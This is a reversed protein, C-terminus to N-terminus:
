VNIPILVTDIIHVVGRCVKIDPKVVAAESDVAKILVGDASKSVTLPPVPGGLATKLQQGDSLSSATAAAGPVIHYSLLATVATQNDTLLSPNQISSVLKQFADNNPAFLTFDSGGKKSLEARLEPTLKSVLSGLTSLEPTAAIVEAVTQCSAQQAASPAAASLHRGVVVTRTVYPSFVATTALGGM